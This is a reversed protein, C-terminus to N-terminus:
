HTKKKFALKKKPFIAKKAANTAPNEDDLAADPPKKFSDDNIRLHLGESAGGDTLISKFPGKAAPDWFPTTKGCPPNRRGWVGM